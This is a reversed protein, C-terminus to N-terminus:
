SCREVAREIDEANFDPNEPKSEYVDEEFKRIGKHNSHSITYSEVIHDTQINRDLIIKVDPFRDRAKLCFYIDETFNPGTLFFPTELKRLLDVKIVVTSFGIADCPIIDTENEQIEDYTLHRLSDKDEEEFKFAMPKFPYCRVYTLGAVIDAKERMSTQILRGFAEKPLCVDDDYFILYDCGNVLATQATQNRMNDISMRRPFNVFFEDESMHKGAWHWLLTHSGYALSNQHTLLNCGVAIKM